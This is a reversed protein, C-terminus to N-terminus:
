ETSYLTVMKVATESICAITNKQNLVMMNKHFWNGIIRFNNSRAKKVLRKRLNVKKVDGTCDSGSFFLNKAHLLLYNLVINSLPAGLISKQPFRPITESCSSYVNNVKTKQYRGTLKAYKLNQNLWFFEITWLVM